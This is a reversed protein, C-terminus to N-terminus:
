YTSRGQCFDCPCMAQIARRIATQADALTAYAMFEGVTEITRGEDTVERVTFMRPMTADDQCESTVFWRGEILESEIRTGFFRMSSPSFWHHGSARNAEIVEYMTSFM